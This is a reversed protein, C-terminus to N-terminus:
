TNIHNIKEALAYDKETVKGSSHTRLKVVVKGYSLEIDPHHNMEEALAGIKNVFSLASAFDPFTFTHELFNEKEIWAEPIKNAMFTLTGFSSAKFPSYTSPTELM